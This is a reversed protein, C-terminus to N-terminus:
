KESQDQKEEEEKQVEEMNVQVDVPNQKQPSKTHVEDDVEFGYDALERDKPLPKGAAAFAEYM